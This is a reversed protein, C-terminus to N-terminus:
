EREQRGATPHRGWDDFRRLLPSRDIVATFSVKESALNLGVVGALTLARAWRPLRTAAASGLGAGLANAGCDGLMSRAALDTPLSGLAAGVVPASGSGALGAGLLTVVKAARGPRLDLLNVLNATGAILATNLVVDTPSTSRLSRAHLVSSLLASAGVGVIKILGSTVRGQALAGLHGRFGKAQASGHLDDVAGVLGSGAVAVMRPLRPHDHDLALGALTALVAAPGELLTVQDGAHNTRHWRRTVSQVSPSTAVRNALAATAGALLGSAASGAAGVNM